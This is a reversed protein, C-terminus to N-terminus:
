YCNRKKGIKKKWTELEWQSHSKLRRPSRRDAKRHSGAMSLRDYGRPEKTDHLDRFELKCTFMVM